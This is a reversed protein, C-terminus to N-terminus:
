RPRLHEPLQPTGEVLDAFLADLARSQAADPSDEADLAIALASLADRIQLAETEDLVRRAAGHFALVWTGPPQPGVILMDLTHRVVAGDAAESTAVAVMGDGSDIRMPVGICM